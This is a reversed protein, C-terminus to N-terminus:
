RGIEPTRPLPLLDLEAPPRRDDEEAVPADRVPAAMKPSNEAAQSALSLCNLIAFSSSVRAMGGIVLLHPDVACLHGTAGRQALAARNSLGFIPKALQEHVPM